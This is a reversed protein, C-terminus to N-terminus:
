TNCRYDFAVIVEKKGVKSTDVIYTLRNFCNEEIISRCIGANTEFDKTFDESKISAIKHGKAMADHAFNAMISSGKPYMKKVEEDPIITYRWM